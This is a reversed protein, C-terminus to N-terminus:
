LIESDAIARVGRAVEEISRSADIIRFRQPEARALELFGGRVREHFEIKEREFRDERRADGAVEL